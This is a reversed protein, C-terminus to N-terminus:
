YTVPATTSAPTPAAPEACAVTEAERAHARADRVHQRADRLAVRAADLDALVKDRDETAERFAWDTGHVRAFAAHRAEIAGDLATAADTAAPCDAAPAAHASAVAMWLTMTVM